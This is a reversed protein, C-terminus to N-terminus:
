FVVIYKLNVGLATGTQHFVVDKSLQRRMEESHDATQEQRRCWSEKTAVFWTCYERCEEIDSFVVEHSLDGTFLGYPLKLSDYRFLTFNFDTINEPSAALGRLFYPV